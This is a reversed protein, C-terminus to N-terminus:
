ASKKEAEKEAKAKEKEAKKQEAKLRERETRLLEVEQASFSKGVSEYAIQLFQNYTYEGRKGFAVYQGTVILEDRARTMSVFLLRKKEEVTLKSERSRKYCEPADYKSIMNYVVNWELGKSSHATTLVVGPYNHTRRVAATSGFRYFDSVYDFIKSVPKTKLTEIFSEFVEDENEDLCTLLEILREKKEEETTLAHYAEIQAKVDAVAKEIDEKSAILLDHETTKANAYILMDKTDEPAFIATCLAIAARVRSNEVLPEPNLMVTQISARNLIDAMKMLEYKTAAIIAIDEPKTGSELHEKISNLVYQQEEEKTLFGEVIVPKGHPRTAILEKDVKETRTENVMNAAELIEPTSRHNEMLMIDDVKCGMYKDFNVIFEPTTDRFSFIAQSDDGVIMLSEFTPVDMLRKVLEIQGENTDQFEDIILHKFGFKELYFPDQHLLEFVLVEQDSFEILNDERLKEDYKDYLEILEKIANRGAFRADSGMKSIVADLDSASFQGAKVVSFVKKAIALPGKCTKIDADFNRYDLDGVPYTNLLDVIIRSREIDDIVKPPQKFGLKAFEEKLIADGFANFTMISMKSIDADIGFDELILAIRTRMEEAGANTFTILLLEEPKVGKNILTATRLAIVMTKGAGAGANVRCVGKEYEVVKEQAATLNLDKLSKKFPEKVIALPSQTFKCLDFLDCKSCDDPSCEEEPISECFADVRPAYTEDMSCKAGPNNEYEGVISVINRGGTLNFFDMDFKPDDKSHRDNEKRLFYYSAKITKSHGPPVLAKGYCFLAFLGLDNHAAKQTLSPKSCKIMFVEITNETVSIYDPIVDAVLVNGNSDPMEVSAHVGHMLNRKESSLYRFIQRYADHAHMERQKNSAYDVEEFQEKLFDEVETTKMKGDICESIAKKIIGSKKMFDATERQILGKFTRKARCADINTLGHMKVNIEM